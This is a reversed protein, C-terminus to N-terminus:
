PTAKRSGGDMYISSGFVYTCANSSLFTAMKAIEEPEAIRRAPLIAEEINDEKSTMRGKILERARDTNTAGPCIVNVLINDRSVQNSLARTM